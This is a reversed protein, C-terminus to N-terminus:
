TCAKNEDHKSEYDGSFGEMIWGGVFHFIILFLLSLSTPGYLETFNNLTSSNDDYLVTVTEGIKYTTNFPLGVNTSDLVEYNGKKFSYTFHYSPESHNGHCVNVITGETKFYRESILYNDVINYIILIGM